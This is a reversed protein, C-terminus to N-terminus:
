FQLSCKGDYEVGELVLSAWLVTMIESIGNLGKLEIKDPSITRYDFSEVLAENVEDWTVPEHFNDQALRIRLTSFDDSKLKSLHPLASNTTQNPNNSSDLLLKDISLSLKSLKQGTRASLTAEMTFCLDRTFRELKFSLFSLCKLNM